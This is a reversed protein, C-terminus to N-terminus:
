LDDYVDMFYNKRFGIFVNSKSRFLFCADGVESRKPNHEKRSQVTYVDVDNIHYHKADTVDIEEAEVTRRRVPSPLRRLCWDIEAAFVRHESTM